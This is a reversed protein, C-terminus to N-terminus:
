RPSLSPNVGAPIAASPHRITSSRGSAAPGNPTTDHCRAPLSAPGPQPSLAATLLNQGPHRHRSLQEVPIMPRPM